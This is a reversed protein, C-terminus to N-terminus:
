VVSFIIKAPSGAAIAGAPIDHTVVSNAGIIAGDGIHVRGLVCVREGIWVYNGIVINGKSYLPRENPNVQRQTIDHPDGHSNDSILVSKGTRIHNGIVVGSAATIHLDEGFMCKNGIEIRTVNGTGLRFGTLASNRGIFTGEGIRISQGGALRLGREIKVNKGLHQFEPKRWYTYVINMYSRIVNAYKHPYILSLLRGLCSALWILISKM